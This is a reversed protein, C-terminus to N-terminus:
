LFAWDGRTACWAWLAANALAHSWITPGLGLGRRRNCACTLASWLLGTLVAAAWDVPRHNLAFLAASTLIGAWPWDALSPTPEAPRAPKAALFELLPLGAVASRWASWTPLTRPVASRFFLEEIAPVVLTMGLLRLALATRGILPQDAVLRSLPSSSTPPQTGRWLADWHAAFNGRLLWGLGLWLALVLAATPLSLWHFRATLEPFLARWHWLLAATAAMQAAYVAILCAPAHDEAMRTLPLFALWLLLPALRAQWPQRAAWLDIAPFLSPLASLMALPVAPDLYLKRM